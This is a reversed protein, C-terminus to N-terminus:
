RAEYDFPAPPRPLPAGEFRREENTHALRVALLGDTEDSAISAEVIRLNRQAVEYEPELELAAKFFKRAGELNNEQLYLVGMNNFAVFPQATKSLHVLAGKEDGLKTLLAALNNHAEAITSDLEISQELATKANTWDSLLMYSYGLNALRTASADKQVARKFWVVADAPERRHLHIRGIIEYTDASSAGLEIARQGHELALVYDGLADWIRASDLQIEIQSAAPIPPPASSLLAQADWYLQHDVYARALRFRADLDAVNKEVLRALEALKPDQSLLAARQETQQTSESSLKYVPRVYHSLSSPKVAKYSNHSGSTRLARGACSCVTLTTICLAATKITFGKV